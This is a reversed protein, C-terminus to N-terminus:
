SKLVKELSMMAIGQFFDLVAALILVTVWSSIGLGFVEAFRSTVWLAVFNVVFYVAMLQMPTLNKGQKNEWETIFPLTFTTILGLKGASLATAWLVTLSMTGLVVHDPFWMHAFYIVVGSVLTLLIYSLFLVMGPNKAEVSASSKPM